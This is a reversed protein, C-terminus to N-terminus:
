KAAAALKVAEDLTALRTRYQSMLTKAVDLEKGALKSQPPLKLRLPNIQKGSRHVEYHLHPGTSLGTTGVYGLVQGQRVKRGKGIGKAFRHLHAYATKLGGPHRVRVYNGYKGNRGAFEIIGDGAAYVPTGRPAAFDVGAHLRSYGLIPHKRMGFRSSIRAGDLPTKLLSRQASLGESGYFGDREIGEVYFYERLVGQVNMSAYLIRGSESRNGDEDYVVEYLVSFEDGKRIERQFDYDYAFVGIFDSIFQNEMGLDSLSEYLSSRITGRVRSDTLFHDREVQTSSYTGDPNRRVEVAKIPGLHVRMRELKGQKAVSAASASSTTSSAKATEIEIPPLAFALRVEQGLQLKRLNFLKSLAKTAQYSEEREIGQRDLMGALTDGKGVKLTKWVLGDGLTVGSSAAGSNAGADVAKSASAPRPSFLSEAGDIADLSLPSTALSQDGGTLLDGQRSPHDLSANASALAIVFGVAISVCSFALRSRFGAFQDSLGLQPDDQQSQYQDRRQPLPPSAPANADDGNTGANSVM